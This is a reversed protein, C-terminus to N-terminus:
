DGHGGLIHRPRLAAIARALVDTPVQALEHALERARALPDLCVETALGIGLAQTACIPRGTVILDMARAHGLLPPLLELAGWDPLWGRSVEPLALCGSEALIRFDCHLALEVGGGYAGGQIAAIVPVPASRLSGFAQKGKDAWAQHEAVGSLQHWSDLDAGACFVPGEGWVILARLRPEGRLDRVAAVLGDLMAGTLANRKSPRNLVVEGIGEAFHHRIMGASSGDDGDTSMCCCAVFTSARTCIQIRM